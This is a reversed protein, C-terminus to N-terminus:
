CVNRICTTVDLTAVHTIRWTEGGERIKRIEKSTNDNNVEDLIEHLELVKDQSAHLKLLRKASLEKM